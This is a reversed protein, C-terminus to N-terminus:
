CFLKTRIGRLRALESSEVCAIAILTYALGKRRRPTLWSDAGEGDGSRGDKDAPGAM